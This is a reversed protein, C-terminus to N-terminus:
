VRVFMRKQDSTNNPPLVTARHCFKVLDNIADALSDILESSTAILRAEDQDCDEGGRRRQDSESRTTLLVEADSWKILNALRLNVRSKHTYLEKADIHWSSSRLQNYVDLVSELVQTANSSIIEYKGKSIIMKKYPNM